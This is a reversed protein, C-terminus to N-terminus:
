EDGDFAQSMLQEIREPDNQAMAQLVQRKLSEEDPSHDRNTIFDGEEAEGGALNAPPFARELAQAIREHTSNMRKAERVLSRLSVFVFPLKM